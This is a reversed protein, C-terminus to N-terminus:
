NENSGWVFWENLFEVEANIAEQRDYWPGTLVPGGVPRTDIMWGCGWTRSWAAIRSDDAVLKRIARFALRLYTNVPVVHSARRVVAGELRPAAKTLLYTMRGESIIFTVENQV